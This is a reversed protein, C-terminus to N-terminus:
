GAVDPAGCGISCARKRTFDGHFRRSPAIISEAGHDLQERAPLAKERLQRTGGLDDELGRVGQVLEGRVEGLHLQLARPDLVELVLAVLDRVLREPKKRARPDRGDVPLVNVVEDLGEVVHEVKEVGRGRSEDEVLDGGRRWSQLRGGGNEHLRCLRDATPCTEETVELVGRRDQFDAHLDVAELVFGVAQVANGDSVEELRFLIRDREHFPLLDVLNEFLGRVAALVDRVNELLDDQLGGSRRAGGILKTRKTTNTASAKSKMLPKGSGAFGMAVTTPVRTRVGFFATMHAAKKLKTAANERSVRTALVIPLSMTFGATTSGRRTKAARTPAITHFRAVHHHARGDEEECARMPPNAPAARTFAPGAERTAFPRPFVTTKMTGDGSRPNARPKM